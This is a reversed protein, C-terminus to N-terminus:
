FKSYVRLRGLSPKMLCVLTWPQNYLMRKENWTRQSDYQNYVSFEQFGPGPSLDKRPFKLNKMRKRREQFQLSPPAM